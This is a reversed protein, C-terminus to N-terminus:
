DAKKNKDLEQKVIKKIIARTIVDCLLGSNDEKTDIIKTEVNRATRIPKIM